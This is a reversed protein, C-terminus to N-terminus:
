FFANLCNYFIANAMQLKGWLTIHNTFNLIKENNKLTGYGKPQSLLFTGKKIIDM